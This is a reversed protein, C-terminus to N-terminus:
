GPAYTAQCTLSCHMHGGCKLSTGVWRRQEVRSASPRPPDQRIQNRGIPRLTGYISFPAVFILESKSEHGSTLQQEYRVMATKSDHTRKTVLDDEVVETMVAVLPDTGTARDDLKSAGQRGLVQSLIIRYYILSENENNDVFVGYSVHDTSLIVPM